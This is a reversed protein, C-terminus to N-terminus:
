GKLKERLSRIARLQAVAQALETAAKSYDFDSGKDQMLQLARAKAQEAAVEDLDGAGSAVDALIIVQHPQVELFGSQVYFIKKDIGGDGVPVDLVVEGPKLTTLLPTHGPHIGLEGESGTVAVFRAHGSFLANEASVIDVNILESM